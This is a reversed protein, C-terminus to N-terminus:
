VKSNMFAQEVWLNHKYLHQLIMCVINIIINNSVTKSYVKSNHLFKDLVIIKIFIVELESKTLM